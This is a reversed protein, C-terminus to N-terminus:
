LRGDVSAAPFLHKVDYLVADPRGFKRIQDVGLERFQRHAVALIIADYIGRSPEGIPRIGYESEAQAPDVWPDYLDCGIGYDGLERVIDVVRTNRLDPCNEKFTL